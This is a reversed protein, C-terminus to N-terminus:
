ESALTDAAEAIADVDLNQLSIDEGIVYEATLGCEYCEFAIEVEHALTSVDDRAGCEPCAFWERFRYEM